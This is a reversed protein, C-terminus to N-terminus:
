VQLAYSRSMERSPLSRLVPLPIRAVLTSVLVQLIVAAAQEFSVGDPIPVVRDAPALAFQAYTGLVSCWAM